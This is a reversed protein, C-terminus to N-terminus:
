RNLSSCAMSTPRPNWTSISPPTRTPECYPPLATLPCLNQCFAGFLPEWGSWARRSLARLALIAAITLFPVVAV